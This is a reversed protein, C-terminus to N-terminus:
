FVKGPFQKKIKDLWADNNIKPNEPPNNATFIKPKYNDPQIANTAIVYGQDNVNGVIGYIYAPLNKVTPNNLVQLVILNMLDQELDKNILTKKIIRKAIKLKKNEADADVVVDPEPTTKINNEKKFIIKDTKIGVLPKEVQPKFDIPQSHLNWITSGDKLRKYVAYGNKLLFRLAKRTAYMSLKLTSKINKYHPNWNIPKSLLYAYVKFAVPPMSSVIISNDIQTFNNQLTTKIITMFLGVLSKDNM